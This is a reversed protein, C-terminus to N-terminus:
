ENNAKREETKVYVKQTARGRIGLKGAKYFANLEKRAAERNLGTREAYNYGRIFGNAAIFTYAAELRAEMSEHSLIAAKKRTRNPRCLANAQRVLNPHVRFNIKSLCVSAGNRKIAVESVGDEENKLSLKASFSGIGDLRVSNGRATEQAIYNALGSILGKVDAETFSTGAQMHTAFDQLSKVSTTKMKPYYRTSTIGNLQPMKQMFYDAM